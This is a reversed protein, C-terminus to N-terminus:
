SISQCAKALSHPRCNTEVVPRGTNGVSKRALNIHAQVTKLPLDSRVVQVNQVRGM